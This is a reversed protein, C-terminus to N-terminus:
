YIPPFLNFGPDESDTHSLFSFGDSDGQIEVNSIIGDEAEALAKQYSIIRGTNTEFSIIKGNHNRQVKVISEM